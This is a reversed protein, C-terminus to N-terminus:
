EFVLFGLTEARNDLSTGRENGWVTFLAGEVHRWRQLGLGWVTGSAPPPIKKLEAFPIRLEIQWADEKLVVKKEVAFDARADAGRRNGWGDWQTGLSNFILQIYSDYDLRPDLYLVICDDAWVERDDKDIRRRIRPLEPEILKIGFYLAEADYAVAFETAQPKKSADLFVTNKFAVRERWVPEDLEGDIVPARTTSAAAIWPKHGERASAPAVLAEANARWLSGPARRIVKDVWARAEGHKGAKVLCRVVRFVWQPWSRAEPHMDALRGYGALIEEPSTDEDTAEDMLAALDDVSVRGGYQAWFRNMVERAEATKGQERLRKIREAAKRLLSENVRALPAGEGRPAYYPGIPGAPKMRLVRVGCAPFVFAIPRAERVPERDEPPPWGDIPTFDRRDLSWVAPHDAMVERVTISRGWGFSLHVTAERPECNAALMWVEEGVEKMMVDIRASPNEITTHTLLPSDPPPDPAFLVPELRRIEGTCRLISAWHDAHDLRVGAEYWSIGKAGHILALYVNLRNEVPSIISGWSANVVVVPKRHDVARYAADVALAQYSYPQGVIHPYPDISFVDVVKSSRPYNQPYLDNLMTFHNPDHRKIFAARREDAQMAAEDHGAEDSMLYGLLAPHHRAALLQNRARKRDAETDVCPVHGIVKLGLDEARDLVALRASDPALDYTELVTNFGWGAAERSSRLYYVYVPFFPKGDFTINNNEDAAARHVPRPASLGAGFAQVENFAVYPAARDDAALVEVKLYRLWAPEELVIEEWPSGADLKLDVVALEDLSSSHMGGLFRLRR